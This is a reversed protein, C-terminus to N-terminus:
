KNDNKRCQKYEEKTLGMQKREWEDVGDEGYLEYESLPDSNVTFIGIWALVLLTVIVIGLIM